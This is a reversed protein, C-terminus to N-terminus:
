SIGVIIGGSVILNSGTPITATLGNTGSINFGRDTRIIGSVHLNESPTTTGIGVMGNQQIVMVNNDGPHAPMYFWLNNNTANGCWLSAWDSAGAKGKLELSAYGSDGTTEVRARSQHGDVVHLNYTDDISGVGVGMIKGVIANGSVHLNELPNSTGIGVKGDAKIVMKETRSYRDTESTVFAIRQPCIGSSVNGDVTLNVAATGHMGGGDYIEGLLSFVGDDELPVLPSGLTGRSRGAKFVGRHGALNSGAVVLNFTPSSNTDSILVRDFLEPSLLSSNVDKGDVSIHLESKPDKTGIGVYGRSYNIATGNKDWLGDKERLKGLIPDYKAGM